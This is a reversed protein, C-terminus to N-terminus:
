LDSLKKIINNYVKPYLVELTELLEAMIVLVQDKSKGKIVEWFEGDQEVTKEETKSNYFQNYVIYLNALREINQFSPPEAEYTKITKLLEDKSIM